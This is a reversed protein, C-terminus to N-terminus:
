LTSCWNLTRIAIRTMEAVANGEIGRGTERRLRLGHGGGKKVKWGKTDSGPALIAALTNRSDIQEPRMFAFVLAFARTTQIAFDL